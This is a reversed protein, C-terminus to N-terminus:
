ANGFEFFMLDRGFYIMKYRNVSKLTFQNM